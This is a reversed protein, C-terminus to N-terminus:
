FDLLINRLRKSEKNWYYRRHKRLLEKNNKYVKEYAERHKQRWQTVREVSTLPM